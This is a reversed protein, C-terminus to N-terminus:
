HGGRQRGINKRIIRDFAVDGGVHRHPRSAAFSSRRTCPGKACHGVGIQRSQGEQWPIVHAEAKEGLGALMAIAAALRLTKMTSRM